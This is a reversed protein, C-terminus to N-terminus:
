EDAEAHWEGYVGVARPNQSSTQLKGSGKKRTSESAGLNDLHYFFSEAFLSSPFGALDEGKRKRRDKVRSMRSLSSRTRMKKLSQQQCGRQDDPPGARQGARRKAPTPWVSGELNM